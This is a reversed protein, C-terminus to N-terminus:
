QKRARICRFVEEKGITKVMCVAAVCPSVRTKPSRPACQHLPTAAGKLPRIRETKCKKLFFVAFIM